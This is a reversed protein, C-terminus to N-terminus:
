MAMALRFIWCKLGRFIEESFFKVKDIAIDMYDPAYSVHSFRPQVSKAM